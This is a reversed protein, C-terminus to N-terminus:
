NTLYRQAVPARRASTPIRARRALASGRRGRGRKPESQAVASRLELPRRELGLLKRRRPPRRRRASCRRSAERRRRAGARLPTGAFFIIERGRGVRWRRRRPVAPSVRRIQAEPPAGHPHGDLRGAPLQRAFRRVRARTVHRWAEAEAEAAKVVGSPRRRGPLADCFLRDWAEGRHQLPACAVQWAQLCADQAARRRAFISERLKRRLHAGRYIRQILTVARDLRAYKDDLSVIADVRKEPNQSNWIARHDSGESFFRPDVDTVVGDVVTANEPHLQAIWAEYTNRRQPPPSHKNKRKLFKKLDNAIQARAQAKADDRLKDLTEQDNVDATELGTNSKPADGYIASSLRRAIDM